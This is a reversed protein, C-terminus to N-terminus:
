HSFIKEINVFGWRTLIKDYTGNQMIEELGKNFQQILTEGADNKLTVLRLGTKTLPLSVLKFDNKYFINTYTYAPIAPYIAGDIRGSKLDALATLIDDYIRVQISNEKELNILIPSHKPIAIIKKRLENWGDIPANSPVILVPGSIFFPNSFLFRNEYLYSTQLTTIVGDLKNQELEEIPDTVSSFKVRFNQQKSIATLLDSNFASLNREKNALYLDQWSTDQGIHYDSENVTAKNCSRIVFFLSLGILIGIIIYGYRKASPFLTQKQLELNAKTM